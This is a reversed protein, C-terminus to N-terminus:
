PSSRGPGSKPAQRIYVSIEGLLGDPDLEFVLCEHTILPHGDLDITERLEVIIRQDGLATV